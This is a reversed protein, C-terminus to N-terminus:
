APCTGARCPGLDRGGLVELVIRGVGHDHHVRDIQGFDARLQPRHPQSGFQHRDSMLGRGMGRRRRRPRLRDGLKGVHRHYAVLEPRRGLRCAVGGGARDRSAHRVQAKMQFAGEIGRTHFVRRAVLVRQMERGLEPVEGLFQGAFEDVAETQFPPVDDLDAAAVPVHEVKIACGPRRRRGAEIRRHRSPVRGEGRAVAHLDHRFIEPGVLQGGRDVRDQAAVHQLMQVARQREQLVDARAM